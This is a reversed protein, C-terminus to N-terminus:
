RVKMHTHSPDAKMYEVSGSAIGNAHQERLERHSAVVYDAMARAEDWDTGGPFVNRYLAQALSETDGADLSKGYSEARGYFMKALKKMRKPMSVDGIGLERLSHDVDKFFEDTVDQAINQLPGTEGRARHLFLFMHLAMMEFRGLPTDPVKWEAYLSPQRAAAVIKGYLKEVIEANENRGTGFLRKFM